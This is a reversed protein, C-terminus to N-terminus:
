SVAPGCVRCPRRGPPIGTVKQQRDAPIEKLRPCTERHFVPSGDLLVFVPQPTEAAPPSPEKQRGQPAGPKGTHRWSVTLITGLVLLALGLFVVDIALFM